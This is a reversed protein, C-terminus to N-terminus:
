LIESAIRTNQSPIQVIQPLYRADSYYRSNDLLKLKSENDMVIRETNFMFIHVDCKFNALIRLM